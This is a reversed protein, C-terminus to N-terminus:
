EDPPTYSVLQLGPDDSLPQAMAVYRQGQMMAKTEEFGPGSAPAYTAVQSAPADSPSLVNSRLVFGGVALVLCLAAAGAFAYVRRESHMPTWLLRNWLSARIPDSARVRAMVGSVFADDTKAEPVARLAAVVGSMGREFEACQACTTRHAEVFVADAPSLSSESTSILYQFRQCSM